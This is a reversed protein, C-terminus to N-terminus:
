TALTLPEGTVGEIWAKHHGISTGGGAAAHVESVALAHLDDNVVFFISGSDGVRFMGYPCGLNVAPGISAGGVGSFYGLEFVRPTETQDFAFVPVGSGFAEDAYGERYMYQHLLENDLVTVPTTTATEAFQCVGLDGPGRVVKTVTLTEGSVTRAKFGVPPMYHNAFVGWHPSVLCGNYQTTFHGDLGTVGDFSVTDKTYLRAGAAVYEGVSHDFDYDWQEQTGDHIIEVGGDVSDMLRMTLADAHGCGVHVGNRVANSPLTDRINKLLFSLYYSSLPVGKCIELMSNTHATNEFTVGQIGKGDWSSCGYFMRQCLVPACKWPSMGSLGSCGRFMGHTYAFDKTRGTESGPFETLGVCNAFAGSADVPADRNESLLVKGKLSANNAFVRSLKATKGVVVRDYRSLDLTGYANALDDCHHTSIYLTDM